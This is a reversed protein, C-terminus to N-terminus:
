YCRSAVHIVMNKIMHLDNEKRPRSSSHIHKSCLFAVLVGFFLGLRLARIIGSTSICWVDRLCSVGGFAQKKEIYYVM